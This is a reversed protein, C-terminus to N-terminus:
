TADIKLLSQAHSNIPHADQTSVVDCTVSWYGTLLPAWPVIVQVREGPALAPATVQGIPTYTAEKDTGYDFFDNPKGSACRVDAPAGASLGENSVEVRLGQGPVYEIGYQYVAPDPGVTYDRGAARLVEPTIERVDEGYNV